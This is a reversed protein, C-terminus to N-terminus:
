KRKNAKKKLELMKTHIYAVLYAYAEDDKATPLIGVRDAIIDAIHVTEHVTDSLSINFPLISLSVYEDSNEEEWTIAAGSELGEEWEGMKKVYEHVDNTFVLQADSDYIPVDLTYKIAKLKGM